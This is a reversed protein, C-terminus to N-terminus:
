TTFLLQICFQISVPFYSDYNIVTSWHYRRFRSVSDGTGAEPTQALRGWAPGQASYWSYNKNNEKKGWSGDGWLAARSFRTIELSKPPISFSRFNTFNECTDNTSDIVFNDRDIISSLRDVTIRRLHSRVSWWYRGHEGTRPISGVTPISRPLGVPQNSLPNTDINTFTNPGNRLVQANM